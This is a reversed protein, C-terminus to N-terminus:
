PWMSFPPLVLQGSGPSGSEAHTSAPRWVAWPVTGLSELCSLDINPAAEAQKLATTAARGKSVSSIEAGRSEAATVGLTIPVVEYHERTAAKM